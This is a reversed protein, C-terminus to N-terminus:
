SSSVLAIEDKNLGYIEFVLADIKADTSAIRAAVNAKSAPNKENEFQKKLSLM